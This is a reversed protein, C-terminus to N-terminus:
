SESRIFDNPFINLHPNGRWMKKGSCHCNDFENVLKDTAGSTCDYHFGNKIPGGFRFKANLFCSPLHGDSVKWAVGHLERGPSKFRIRRGNEYAAPVEPKSYAFSMEFDREKALFLKKVADDGVTKPLDLCLAHICSELKKEGFAKMPLVFPTRPLRDQLYNRVQKRIDLQMKVLVELKEVLDSQFERVQRRPYSFLWEVELTVVLAFPLFADAFKRFDESPAHVIVISLGELFEKPNKEARLAIARIYEKANEIEFRKYNEAVRGDVLKSGAPLRKALRGPLDM